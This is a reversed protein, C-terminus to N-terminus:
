DAPQFLTRLPLQSLAVAASELIDAAFEAKAAKLNM